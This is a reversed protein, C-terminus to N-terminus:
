PNFSAIQEDLSKLIEEKMDKAISKDAKIEARAERLAAVATTHGITNCVIMTRGNDRTFEQRREGDGCSIELQSVARAGNGADAIAIQMKRRASRASARANRASEEAERIAEARDREAEAIDRRMDEMDREFDAREEPSMNEPGGRYVRRVTRVRGNDDVTREVEVTRSTTGEENDDVWVDVNVNHDYRDSVEPPAPVDPTEPPLPVDPAAPVDPATPVGEAYGVSATMPVALFGAAIAIRTAMRRRPSIDSMTLSRLRHIISKDGLVPCAMPAALVARPSTNPRRAFEAIVGAYAAREERSRHAVVRADCAAEQDRRMASWGLWGLPNFWHIAFLPQVAINMLLDGGRHHALEHEIALDRQVRNRNNMFGLPLAVVKDIVGFAIPGDIAPTEILRVRGADGVPVADALLARRLAFYLRFRHLLFIASGVLWVLMLPTILDVPDAFSQPAVPIAVLDAYYDTPAGSSLVTTEVVTEAPRMWSPLTVPPFILRLLPLFWLAYAARSGLHRAVPRRLLMVVAILVGTWVLTDFLFGDWAQHLLAIM